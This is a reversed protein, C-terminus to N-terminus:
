NYSHDIYPRECEVIEDYTVSPFGESPAETETEDVPTASMVLWGFFSVGCMVVFM